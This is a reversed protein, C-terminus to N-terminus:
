DVLEEVEPEPVEEGIWAAYARVIDEVDQSETSNMLGNLTSEVVHRYFRQVNPDKERLPVGNYIISPFM